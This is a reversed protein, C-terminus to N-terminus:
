ESHSLRRRNHGFHLLAASITKSCKSLNIKRSIIIPVMKRYPYQASWREIIRRNENKTIESGVSPWNSDNVPMSSSEPIQANFEVHYNWAILRGGVRLICHSEPTKATWGFELTKFTIMECNLYFDIGNKKKYKIGWYFKDNILYFFAESLPM